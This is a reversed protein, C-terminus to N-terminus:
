WVSRLLEAAEAASVPRPNARAGRRSAAIAGLEDLEEEPVGLDRLRTFGGLRALEEVRALPDDTGM